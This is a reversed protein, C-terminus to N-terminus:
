EVVWVTVGEAARILEEAVHHRFLRKLGSFTRRGVVVTGYDGEVATKLIHHTTNKADLPEEFQVLLEAVDIGGDSLSRQLHRILARGEDIAESEMEQYAEARESSVKDEIEPDESGGWELMGPPLELHLLGVHFGPSGGVLDAVYAVTRGSAASGDVAVLIRKSNHM